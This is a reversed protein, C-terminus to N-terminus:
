KKRGEITDNLKRRIFNLIERMDNEPLTLGNLVLEVSRGDDLFLYAESDKIEITIDNIDM